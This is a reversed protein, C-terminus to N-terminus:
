QHRGRSSRSARLADLFAAREARYIAHAFEARRVYEALALAEASQLKPASGSSRPAARSRLHIPNVM